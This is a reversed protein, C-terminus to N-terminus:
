ISRREFDKAITVLILFITIMLLPPMYELDKSIILTIIGITNLIIVFFVFFYELFIDKM